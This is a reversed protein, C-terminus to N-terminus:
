VGGLCLHTSNSIMIKLLFPGSTGIFFMRFTWPNLTPDDDVHIVTTVIDEATSLEKIDGEGIPTEPDRYYPPVDEQKLPNANKRKTPLDASDHSGVGSASASDKESFQDPPDRVTFNPREM